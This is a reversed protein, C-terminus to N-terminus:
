DDHIHGLYDQKHKLYAAREPTMPVALKVRDVTYGAAALAAIKQPNDSAVRITTGGFTQKLAAIHAQFTRPDPKHGLTQFAEATSMNRTHQLNIAKLKDIIGAGRGEEWAYVLVGGEAIILSLAATIQAGCDCDVAHFAEGFVCSSQFRVVPIDPLRESAAVLLAQGNVEVVKVRLRGEPTPVIVFRQDDAGTAMSM